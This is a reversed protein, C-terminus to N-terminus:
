TLNKFIFVALVAIVLFFGSVFYLIMKQKESESAAEADKQAQETKQKEIDSKFKQQVGAKTIEANNLKKELQVYNQYHLFAGSTNGM